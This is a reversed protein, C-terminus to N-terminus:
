KLISKASSSKAKNLKIGLKASTSSRSSSSKSASSSSTSRSKPTTSTGFGGIGQGWFDSSGGTKALEPTGKLRALKDSSMGGLKALSSIPPVIKKTTSGM